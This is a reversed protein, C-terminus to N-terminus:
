IPSTLTTEECHSSNPQLSSGVGVSVAVGNGVAVKVVTGVLVDVLVGVGVIM